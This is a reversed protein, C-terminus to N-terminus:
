FGKILQYTILQWGDVMIFLLLKFPTSIMVPPLMIMGMTMLVSAVVLDIILFPLFLVFGMMFAIRLESLLFAPVLCYWPIDEAQQKKESTKSEQPDSIGMFLAIDQERAHNILFKRLPQWANHVVIYEETTEGSVVSPLLKYAGSFYPILADKYADKFVPQMVFGTLLLSLGIIIQNSPVQSFGLAQRLFQFVISIRTFSTAMIIAFPILSALSFFGLLKLQNKFNLLTDFNVSVTEAPTDNVAAALLDPCYM